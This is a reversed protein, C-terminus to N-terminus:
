LQVDFCGFDKSHKYLCSDKFCMLASTLSSCGQAQRSSLNLNYVTFCVSFVDAPIYDEIQNIILCYREFTVELIADVIVKSFDPDKNLLEVL